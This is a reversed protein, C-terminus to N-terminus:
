NDTAWAAPTAWGCLAHWSLQPVPFRRLSTSSPFSLFERLNGLVQRLYPLWTQSVRIEVKVALHDIGGIYLIRITNSYYIAGSNFANLIKKM